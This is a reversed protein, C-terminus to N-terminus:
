SLLIMFPLKGFRKNIKLTANKRERYDILLPANAACPTRLSFSTCSVGVGTLGIDM